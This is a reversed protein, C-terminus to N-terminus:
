DAKKSINKSFFLGIEFLLYTPVFLMVQSVVDPPTLISALILLGVVVYPRKDSITKYSVIESKILSYTILPFQFMIGFVVSLWLSVTVINSVGFVANINQTSFSMGFNIIQPLIFFICFLVGLIFLMSSSLVISKIFKKEKEYLAPLLFNWIKKSIYPFCILIDLVLAIKIQILFVETPSFYNLTINHSGILINILHSLVKPAFYFAFPFIVGLSVLCHLITERLAEIHAIISEDSETESM